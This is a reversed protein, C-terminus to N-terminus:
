QTVDRQAERGACMRRYDEYHEKCLAMGAVDHQEDAELVVVRAAERPVHKRDREFILDCVSCPCFM